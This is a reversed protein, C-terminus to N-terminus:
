GRTKDLLMSLQEAERPTIKLIELDTADMKEDISKLMALGSASIMVDAARKDNPCPTKEILKKALLRDLLRSVDSNKDIMRSKIESGSIKNPHQGRLIRLINFQQNTIGFEKFFSANKDLLWNATYLLNVVAKQHANRFKPQKIEEEIKM